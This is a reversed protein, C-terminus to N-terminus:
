KQRWFRRECARDFRRRAEELFREEETLAAAARDVNAAIREVCAGLALLEDDPAAISM